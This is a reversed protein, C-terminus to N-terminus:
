VTCPLVIVSIFLHAFRAVTVSRKLSESNGKTSSTYWPTGVSSLRVYVWLGRRHILNPISSVFDVAFTTFSRQPNIKDFRGFIAMHTAQTIM